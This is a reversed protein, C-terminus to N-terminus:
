CTVARTRARLQRRPRRPRRPRRRLDVFRRHLILHPARPEYDRRQPPACRPRCIPSHPLCPRCRLPPLPSCANRVKSKPWGTPRGSPRMRQKKQVTSTPTAGPRPSLDVTRRVCVKVHETKDSVLRTRVGTLLATAAARGRRARAARAAPVNLATEAADKLSALCAGSVSLHLRKTIDPSGANVLAGRVTPPAAARARADSTSTTVCIGTHALGATSFRFASQRPPAWHLLHLPRRPRRFSGRIYRAAAARRQEHDRRQSPRRLMSSSSSRGAQHGSGDDHARIRQQQNWRHTHQAAASRAAGFPIADRQWGYRLREAPSCATPM